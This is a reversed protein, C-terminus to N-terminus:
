VSRVLRLKDLVRRRVAGGATAAISGFPAWACVQAMALAALPFAVPSELRGLVFAEMWGAIGTVLALGLLAFLTSSGPRSPALLGAVFGTVTPIFALVFFVVAPAAAPGGLTATVWALVSAPAFCKLAILVSRRPFGAKPRWEGLWESGIRAPNGFQRLAAASAEERSEGLEMRAEVMAELHAGLEARLERRREYPVSGVLPALVHDLYDEVLASGTENPQHQSVLM